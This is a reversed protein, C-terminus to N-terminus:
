GELECEKENKKARKKGSGSIKGQQWMKRRRLDVQKVAKKFGEELTVVVVRGPRRRARGETNQGTELGGEEKM